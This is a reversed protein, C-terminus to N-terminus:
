KTYVHMKASMGNKFEPHAAVDFRVSVDFQQTPRQDSISFAVGTDNATPSIQDVIGTYTTGGFADVTFVVPQGVQIKSLGKNEDLEGVVKLDAPNIMTIVSQGPNVAEGLTTDVSTIVGGVQSSVTETGVRVLPTNALVTDGVKVYVEELTGATDPGLHITPAEIMSNDISVMSTYSKWFLVSGLVLGIVVIGTLSQMWPKQFLSTKKDLTHDEM